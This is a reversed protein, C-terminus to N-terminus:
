RRAAVASAVTQLLGLAAQGAAGDRDYDPAYATLAAGAVPIRQTITNVVGRVQQPSPGGPEAFPNARVTGGDHVDMDLHLYVADVRATLAELPDELVGAGSNRLADGSVSLFDGERLLAEEASDLACAGVHLIREDPVAEFGPLSGALTGWCRGTCVALAMGDLFGTPSTEPTNLDGHADLWVIGLRPVDTLGTITGVSSMCNGALVLPFTGNRRARAVEGTLKHALEFATGIETTFATDAEVREMAVNGGTAAEVAQAAGLSVLHGPGRGMRAERHGSDYPVQILTVDM